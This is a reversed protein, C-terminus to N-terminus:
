FAAGGTRGERGAFGQLAAEVGSEEVGVGMEVHRGAALERLRDDIIKLAPDGGAGNVRADVCGSGGGSQFAHGYGVAAVPPGELRHFFDGRGGDSVGLPQLTFDVREEEGSEIFFADSRGGFGIFSGEGLAEINVQGAKTGGVFLDFGEGVIGAGVGVSVEDFRKEM